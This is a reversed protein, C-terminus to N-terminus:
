KFAEVGGVGEIRLTVTAGSDGSQPADTYGGNKQQKLQFIAATSSKPDRELLELLRHERFQQLRKLPVNNGKYTEGAEEGRQYNSLLSPSINLFRCLEWDSPIACTDQCYNVFDKIHIDLLEASEIKRTNAM